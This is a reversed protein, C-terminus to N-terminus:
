TEKFDDLIEKREENLRLYMALYISELRDCEKPKSCFIRKENRIIENQFVTSAQRLDVLQVDRHIKKAIEQSLNWLEVTDVLSDCFIALDLDSDTREYKTGFSGFLYIAWIGIYREKIMKIATDICVKHEPKMDKTYLEFQM